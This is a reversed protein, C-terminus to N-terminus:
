QVIGDNEACFDNRIKGNDVILSEQFRGRHLGDIEHGDHAAQEKCEMTGNGGKGQLLQRNHDENVGCQQNADGHDGLVIPHEKEIVEGCLKQDDTDNEQERM